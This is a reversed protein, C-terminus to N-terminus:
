RKLGKNSTNAALRAQGLAYASIFFQAALKDTGDTGELMFNDVVVVRTLGELSNIYGGLEFFGGEANVQFPIRLLEGKEEVPLPRIMTIHLGHEGGLRTLDALIGAERKNSPLRERMSNIRAELMQMDLAAADLSRAM